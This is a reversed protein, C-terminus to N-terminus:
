ELPKSNEKRWKEIEKHNGSTLVDPVKLGSFDQPRTYQPYEVVERSFSENLPAEEKELVGPLLRVISEMILLAPVEGGSLIFDGISVVDDSLYTLVREDIGEYRGCILIIQGLSLYERAIKQNYKKGRPSLTVIKTNRNKKISNVAKFIPEPKLVMGVGGGFPKDDVTKYNDSSFYRLNHLNFNALGLEVAKKFPLNKLHETFLNPFLTIVDFSIM